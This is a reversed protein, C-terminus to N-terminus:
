YTQIEKAMSILLQQLQKAYVQLEPKITADIKQLMVQERTHDEIPLNQAQKSRGIAQAIEMRQTFLALMNADIQDIQRRLTYLDQEM